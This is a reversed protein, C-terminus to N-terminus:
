QAEKSDDSEINSNFLDVVLRVEGIGIGLEKAIEIISKGQNYLDLIVSNNNEQMQEDEDIIVDTELMIDNVIDNDPVSDHNERIDNIESKISNIDKLHDKIETEKDGLMNYLFMVENHTKSIEDLVKDSYESVAMIKENSVKDLMVETKEVTDDVITSVQDDIQKKIDETNIAASIDIDGETKKSQLHESFIYSCFVIILGLIILFIELGTM